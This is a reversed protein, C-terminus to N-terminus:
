KNKNSLDLKIFAFSELKKTLKLAKFDYKAKYFRIIVSFYSSSKFIIYYDKFALYRM